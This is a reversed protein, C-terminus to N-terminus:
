SQPSHSCMTELWSLEKYRRLFEMKRGRKQSVKSFVQSVAFAELLLPLLKIERLSSLRSSFKQTVFACPDSIQARFIVM